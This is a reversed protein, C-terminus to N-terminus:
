TDVFKWGTEEGGTKNSGDANEGIDNIQSGTNEDMGINVM